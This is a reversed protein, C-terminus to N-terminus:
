KIEYYKKIIDDLSSSYEEKTIRNAIKDTERLIYDTEEMTLLGEQEADLFSDGGNAMLIGKCWEKAIKKLINKDM